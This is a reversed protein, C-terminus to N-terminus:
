GCGRRWSSSSRSVRCSFSDLEIRCNSRCLSDTLRALVAAEVGMGHAVAAVAAESTLMVSTLSSFAFHTMTM